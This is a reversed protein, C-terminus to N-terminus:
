LTFALIRVTALICGGNGRQSYERCSENRNGRGWEQPRRAIGINSWTLSGRLIKASTKGQGSINKEWTELHSFSLSLRETTDSESKAVGHVICDMSNELGSYQLSYGKGEGPYRGLGSISGVLHSVGKWVM